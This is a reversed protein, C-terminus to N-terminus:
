HVGETLLRIGRRGLVSPLLLVRLSGELTGRVTLAACLQCARQHAQMELTSRTRLRDRLFQACAAETRPCAIKARMWSNRYRDRAGEVAGLLASPRLGCFRFLASYGVPEVDVYWLLDQDAHSAAAFTRVAISDELLDCHESQPVLLDRLMRYASARFPEVPEWGDDFAGRLRSGVQETAAAPDMAPELCRAAALISSQHRSWLADFAAHDGSAARATLARDANPFLLVNTGVIM